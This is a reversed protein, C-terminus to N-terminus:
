RAYSLAAKGKRHHRLWGAQELHQMSSLIITYAMDKEPDIRMRIQRLHSHRPLEEGRNQASDVLQRGCRCSPM